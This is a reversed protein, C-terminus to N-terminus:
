KARLQPVFHVSAIVSVGTIIFRCTSIRGTVFEIQLTVFEIQLTVFEIQL